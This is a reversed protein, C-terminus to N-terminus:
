PNMKLFDALSPFIAYNGKKPDYNVMLFREQLITMANPLSSLEGNEDTWDKMKDFTIKKGKYQEARIYHLLKRAQLGETGLNGIEDWRERYLFDLLQKGFLHPLHNMYDWSSRAVESVVLQMLLPMGGTHAMLERVRKKNDLDNELKTLDPHEDVHTQIHWQLFAQAESFEQIPKLRVQILDAARNTLGSVNRTTILVFTDRSALKKLTDFLETGKGVTELNDAVLVARRGAIKDQIERLSKEVSPRGRQPPLNLQAAVRKCFSDPSYYAPDLEIVKGSLPDVEQNKASDGLIMDVANEQYLCRVIKTALTTKGMGGEGAILIVRPGRPLQLAWYLNQLPDFEKKQFLTALDLQGKLNVYSRERELLGTFYTGFASSVLLRQQGLDIAKEGCEAPFVALSEKTKQSPKKGIRDFIKEVVWEPTFELIAFFLRVITNAVFEVILAFFATM